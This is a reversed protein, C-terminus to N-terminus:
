QWSKFTYSLSIILVNNHQGKEIYQPSSTTYPRVATISYAHQIGAAFKDNFRYHVGVLSGLEFKRFPYDPDRLGYGDVDEQGQILYGLTAGAEFRFHKKFNYLFSVPMEVYRLVSKYFTEEDSEVSHSGKEIFRIGFQM